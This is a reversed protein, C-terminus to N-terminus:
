RGCKALVVDQMAAVTRPVNSGGATKAMRKRYAAPLKAYPAPHAYKHHAQAAGYYDFTIALFQIARRCNGEEAYRTATAANMRASEDAKAAEVFHDRTGGGLQVNRGRRSNRRPSPGFRGRAIEGREDVLVWLQKRSRRKRKKAM